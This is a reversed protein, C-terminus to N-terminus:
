QTFISFLMSVELSEFEFKKNTVFIVFRIRMRMTM